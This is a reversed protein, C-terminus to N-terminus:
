LIINLYKKRQEIRTSNFKSTNNTNSSVISPYYCLFYDDVDTFRDISSEDYIFQMSEEINFSFSNLISLIKNDTYEEETIYGQKELDLKIKLILCDIIKFKALDSESPSPIPIINNINTYPYNQKSNKSEKNKMTTKTDTKNLINNNTNTTNTDDKNNISNFNSNENKIQNDKNELGIIDELDDDNLDLCLLDDLEDNMDDLKLPEDVEIILGTKNNTNSYKKNNKLEKDLMDMGRNNGISSNCNGNSGGSGNSFNNSSLNVNLGANHKKNLIKM